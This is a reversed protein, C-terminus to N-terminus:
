AATAALSEFPRAVSVSQVITLFFAILVTIVILQNQRSSVFFFTWLPAALLAFGTMCILANIFSNVRTDNLYYTVGLEGISSTTGAPKALPRQFWTRSRFQEIKELPRRLPVRTAPSVPFLDGKNVFDAEKADISADGHAALWERLNM